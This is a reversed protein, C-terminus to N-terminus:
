RAVEEEKAHRGLESYVLFIERLSMPYPKVAVEGFTASIEDQMDEEDLVNGHIVQVVGSTPAEMKLWAPPRQAPMRRAIAPGVIELRRFREQVSAITESVVMRGNLLIGVRDALREVEAIDHSSILISTPHEWETAELMGQIFDDRVQPDLGGFPEDLVLVEPRFPLITLLIAKVRMGRSMKRLPRDEPLDFMRKLRATLGEDWRPYFRRYYGLLQRVTMWEPYLQDEAVYGIRRFHSKKLATTECGLVTASGSTPQILNLLMKTTTTKGAGNPGLLAFISGAPVAFSVEDVVAQGNFVRTIGNCEIANM